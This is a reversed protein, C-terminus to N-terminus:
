RREEIVYAGGDREVERFTTRVGHEDTKPPPLSGDAGYPVELYHRTTVRHEVETPDGFLGYFEGFTTGDETKWDRKYDGGRGMVISVAKQASAFTVDDTLVDDVILGQEELSKRLPFYGSKEAFAPRVPNVRGGKFVVFGHETPFGTAAYKKGRVSFTQITENM